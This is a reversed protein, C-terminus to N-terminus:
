TNNNISKWKEASNIFDGISMGTPPMGRDMLTPWYWAFYAHCNALTVAVAIKEVFGM